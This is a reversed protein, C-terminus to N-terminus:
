TAVARGAPRWKAIHVANPPHLHLSRLKRVACRENRLPLLHGPPVRAGAPLRGRGPQRAPGRRRVRRRARGGGTRRPRARGPLRVRRRARLRDYRATTTVQTHGALQQVTSIDAGADLLASIFKRRLDYPSFRRVRARPGWRQAIYAVAQGSLRGPRPTNTKGIPWFLPGSEDGRLELWEELALRAGAALYGTREKNGKGHIKLTGTARDLDDLDLGVVEARRLGAAYQVALIAADRIALAQNGRACV